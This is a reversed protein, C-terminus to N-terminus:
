ITPLQECLVGGKEFMDAVDDRLGDTGYTDRYYIAKVGGTILLGACAVCPRHTSYLTAGDTPTGNRACQILANAEAHTTRRCSGSNGSGKCTPCMAVYDWDRGADTIIFTKGGCTNCPSQLCGVDTCHALGSPSGNYGTALIQNRENVLVAGVHLRPCTARKAVVEAISLFINPFTPRM